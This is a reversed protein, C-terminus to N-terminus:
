FMKVFRHPFGESTTDVLPSSMTIRAPALLRVLSDAVLEVLQDPNQQCLGVVIQYIAGADAVPSMDYTDDQTRNIATLYGMLWSATVLPMTNPDAALQQSLTACSQAGVGRIGYDGNSDVAQANSTAALAFFGTLAINRLIQM